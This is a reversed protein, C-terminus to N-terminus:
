RVVDEMYPVHEPLPMPRARGSSGLLSLSLRWSRPRGAVQVVGARRLGEPRASAPAHGAAPRVAPFGWGHQSQQPGPPPLALGGVMRSDPSQSGARHFVSILAEPHLRPSKEKESEESNQSSVMELDGFKHDNCM